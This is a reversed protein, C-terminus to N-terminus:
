FATLVAGLVVCVGAAATWALEQERTPPPPPPRRPKQRPGDARVVCFSSALVLVGGLSGTASSTTLGGILMVVGVFGLLVAAYQHWGRRWRRRAGEDADGWPDDNAEQWFNPDQTV